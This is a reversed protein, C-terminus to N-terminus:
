PSEPVARAISREQASHSLTIAGDILEVVRDAQVVVNEDHTAIMLAVSRESCQDRLLKLVQSGSEQDLNGTPEDAFLIKPKPALARAVATRQSEGGSLTKALHTRRDGLGVAQALDEAIGAADSRPDGRLVMPLAINEVVTLDGILNFFQFVFGFEYRRLRLLEKPAAEGISTGVYRVEGSTPPTLGAAVQLLTSKGSGSPGHLALFEGGELELDISHLATVTSAAQSFVKSIRALELLPPANDTGAGDGAAVPVSEERGM